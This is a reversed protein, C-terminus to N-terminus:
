VMELSKTQSSQLYQTHRTRNSVVVGDLVASASSAKTCSLGAFEYAQTELAVFQYSSHLTSTCGAWLVQMVQM